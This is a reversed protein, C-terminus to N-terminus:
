GPRRGNQLEFLRHHGQQTTVLGVLQPEHSIRRFFTKNSGVITPNLSLGYSL